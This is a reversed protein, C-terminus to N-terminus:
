NALRYIHGVMPDDKYTDMAVFIAALEARVITHTEDQGSAEIYM